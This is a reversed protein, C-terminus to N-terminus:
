RIPVFELEIPSGNRGLEHLVSVVWKGNHLELLLDVLLIILNLMRVRMEYIGSMGMVETVMVM